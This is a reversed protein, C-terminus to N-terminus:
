QLCAQYTAFLVKAGIGGASRYVSSPLCNAGPASERKSALLEEFEGMEISWRVDPPSPQVLAVMADAGDNPVVTDRACFIGGWHLCLQHAAEDPDFTPVGDVDSIAHITLKPKKAAWCQQSAICRALTMDKEAQNAEFGLLEEEYDRINDRPFSEIIKCLARFNVCEM